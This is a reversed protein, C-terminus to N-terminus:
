IQSESSIGPKNFGVYYKGIYFDNPNLGRELLKRRKKIRKLRQRFKIKKRKRLGM